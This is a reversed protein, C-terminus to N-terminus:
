KKIIENICIVKFNLIQIGVLIITGVLTVLVNCIRELM